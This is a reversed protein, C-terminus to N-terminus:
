IGICYLAAPLICFIKSKGYFSLVRAPNRTWTEAPNEKRKVANQFCVGRYPPWLCVSQGELWNAPVVEVTKDETFEM